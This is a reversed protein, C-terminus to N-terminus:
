CISYTTECCANGCSMWKIQIASFPASFTSKWYVNCLGKCAPQSIKYTKTNPCEYSSNYGSEKYEEEFVSELFFDGMVDEWLQEGLRQFEDWDELDYANTFQSYLFYCDNQNPLHIRIPQIQVVGGPCVRKYYHVTVDCDLFPPSPPPQPNPFKIPVSIVEYTWYGCGQITNCIATDNTQSFLSNSSILLVIVILFLNLKNKFKSVLLLSNTTKM